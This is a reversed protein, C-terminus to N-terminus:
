FQGKITFYMLTTFQISVAGQWIYKAQVLILIVCVEMFSVLLGHRGNFMIEVGQVM